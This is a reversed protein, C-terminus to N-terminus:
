LQDLWARIIEKKMPIYPPAEAIAVTVLGTSTDGESHLRPAEKTIDFGYKNHWYSVLYEQEAQGKTPVLTATKQLKILDMLTSYGANCIIKKAGLLYGNLEPDNWTKFIINEKQTSERHENGGFFIVKEQTQSLAETWANQMHTRRPEPGSLLVLVDNEISTRTPDFQSLHGIYHVSKKWRSLLGSAENADGDPVWINPFNALHKELKKQAVSKLLPHVRLNLQHTIITSPVQTHFVGFCCDSIIGDFKHQLCQEKTWQHEKVIAKAIQNQQFVISLSINGKSPYHVNYGPKDLVELNPFRETLWLKARGSSALIVRHGQQQLHAILESSRTAHGLGWDM